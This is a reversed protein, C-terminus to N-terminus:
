WRTRYLRDWEAAFIDSDVAKLAAYTERDGANSAADAWKRFARSGDTCIPVEDARSMDDDFLQRALKRSHKAVIKDTDGRVHVRWEDGDETTGWFESIGHAKNDASDDSLHNLAAVDEATASDLTVIEDHSISRKIADSANM